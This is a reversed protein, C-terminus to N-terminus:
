RGSSQRVVLETDLATVAKPRAPDALTDVLRRVALQGVAEAPQRITTLPPDAYAAIPMDDFGVVAVDGPVSRGRERLARMAGLALTDAHAFLADFQLDRELLNAAAEYGAALSWDRARVTLTAAAEVGAAAHADAYGLARDDAAKWYQPGVIQAIRVRGVDLLHACAQRGGNRNDVDVVDLEIGSAYCAITVVPLRDGSLRRLHDADGGLSARAFLLGEVRQELLMQVYAPEAKRAGGASALLFFYGLQTAEEVAATVAQGLFNGGVGLDNAVLGLTMTSRSVLSRAAASPRYRLADIVGQVRDRTEARIEGKGNLVRSVTQISVGAAAAVQHITTKRSPTSAIM